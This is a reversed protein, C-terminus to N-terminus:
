SFNLNAFNIFNYYGVKCTRGKRLCCGFSCNSNKITCQFYINDDQKGVMM